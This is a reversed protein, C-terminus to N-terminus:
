VDKASFGLYGLTLLGVTWVSFAIASQTVYLWLPVFIGLLYDGHLPSVHPIWYLAVAFVTWALHIVVLAVFPHRTWSSVWHSLAVCLAIFPLIMGILTLLAGGWEAFVWRSQTLMLVMLVVVASLHMVVYLTFHAVFKSFFYDARSTRLLLYRITGRNIDMSVMDSSVLAVISPLLSVSVLQLIWLPAPIPSMTEFILQWKTPIAQTLEARLAQFEDSTLRLLGSLNLNTFLERASYLSLFIVALYLVFAVVTRKRTFIDRLEEFALLGIASVHLM